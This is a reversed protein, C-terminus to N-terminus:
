FNNIKQMMDNKFLLGTYIKEDNKKLKAYVKRKANRTRDNRAKKTLPNLFGVTKDACGNDEKHRQNPTLQIKADLTASM